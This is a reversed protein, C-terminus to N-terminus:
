MASKLREKVEIFLKLRTKAKKITLISIKRSEHSNCYKNQKTRMDKTCGFKALTYFNCTFHL